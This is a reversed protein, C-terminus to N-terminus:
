KLNEDFSLRVVVNDFPITYDYEQKLTKCDVICYHQRLKMDKRGRVFGLLEMKANWRLHECHSLNKLIPETDWKGDGIATTIYSWIKRDITGNEDYLKALARKTEIHWYNSKDQEEQYYAEAWDELKERKEEKVEGKKADFEPEKNRKRYDWLEMKDERYLEMQRNVFEKVCEEQPQTDKHKLSEEKYAYYFEGAKREEDDVSVTDVNFVEKNTGFYAIVDQGYGGADKFTKSMERVFEADKDSRIRVYIKFHDLNKRHQNAFDALQFALLKAENDDKLTIVVYNLAEINEKLMDWFSMSHTTINVWDINKNEALAPANRLFESKQEEIEKDVIIFKKLQETGDNDCPFSSFEYLFRFADRGTEGFGIIMGTFPASVLADDEVNVFNVPHNMREKKLKFVSLSSSDILRVKVNGMEKKLLKKNLSNKRAHCYCKFHVKHSNKQKDESMSLMALVGDTNVQEDDSLFYLNVAVSKRVLADMSGLFRIGLCSFLREPECGKVTSVEFPKEIQLLVADLDKLENVFEATKDNSSHFFHSFTFRSLDHSRGGRQEVFVLRDDKNKERISNALALSNGNVGLFLHVEKAESFRWWLLKLMSLCKLGLFNLVLLLSIFVAMFHVVSFCLMYLKNYHWEKAVEILDSHSVFMEVSSLSARLFLALWNDECGHSNFGIVYLVLGCGWISVALLWLKETVKKRYKSFLILWGIFVLLALMLWSEWFISGIHVGQKTAFTPMEDGIATFLNGLQINM